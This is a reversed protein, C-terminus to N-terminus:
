KEQEEKLTNCRESARGDPYGIQILSSIVADADVKHGISWKDKLDDLEPWRDDMPQQSFFDWWVINAVHYRTADTGVLLDVLWRWDNPHLAKAAMIWLRTALKQEWRGDQASFLEAFRFGAGNAYIEIQKVAEVPVRNKGNQKRWSTKLKRIISAPLCLERINM